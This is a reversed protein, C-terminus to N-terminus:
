YDVESAVDTYSDSARQQKRLRELEENTQALRVELRSAEAALKQQAVREDRRMRRMAFELEQKEGKTEALALKTVVLANLVEAVEDASSTSQKSIQRKTDGLESRLSDNEEKLHSMVSEQDQARMQHTSLQRRMSHLADNAKAAQSTRREMSRTVERMRDREERAKEKEGKEYELDERLDAIENQLEEVRRNLRSEEAEYKDKVCRLEGEVNLLSKRNLSDASSTSKGKSLARKMALDRQGRLEEASTFLEEAERQSAALAQTTSEMRDQLTEMQLALRDNDAKLAVESQKVDQLEKQLDELADALRGENSSSVIGTAAVARETGNSAREREKELKGQVVAYDERMGSYLGSLNTYAEKAKAAHAEHTRVRKTLTENEKQLEELKSKLEAKASAEEASREGSESSAAVLREVEKALDECRREAFDLRACRSLAEDRESAIRSAEATKDRVARQIAAHEDRVRELEGRAGDRAKVADAFDRRMEDTRVAEADLACRHEDQMVALQKRLSGAEAALRDNDRRLAHVRADADAAVSAAASAAAAASPM